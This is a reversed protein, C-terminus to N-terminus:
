PGANSAVPTSGPTDLFRRASVRLLGFIVVPIKLLAHQLIEGGPQPLAGPGPGAPRATM